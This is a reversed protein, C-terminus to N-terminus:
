SNRKAIPDFEKRIERMALEKVRNESLRHPHYGKGPNVTKGKPKGIMKRYHNTIIRIAGRRTIPRPSRALAEGLTAPMKGTHNKARTFYRAINGSPNKRRANGPM